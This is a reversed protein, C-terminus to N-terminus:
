VSGHGAVPRDLFLDDALSTVVHPRYVPTDADVILGSRMLYQNPMHDGGDWGYLKQLRENNASRRAALSQFDLDREATAMLKDRIDAITDSRILNHQEAPDSELDFLLPEFAGFVVLKYQCWRVMRFESGEGWRANLHDCIVPHEPPESGAVLAASLDVGAWEPSMPAGAIGAFTPMLDLLSVPTKFRAAPLTGNRHEPLSVFLPVRASAENWTSKWWTGHEGAMEGHDSTYIVVTNELLGSSELSDLLDGIIEDIYSVCAFYAARSTMTEAQGIRGVKFGERIAASVPHDHSDGSAPVRPPSVTEPRYRGIHRQPATLPFHPRSFSACLFWPKDPHEAHHDRLFSVTEEAVVRDITLSEPVKTLGPEDRTRAVMDDRVRVPNGDATVPAHPNPVAWEYQHSGNGALDGYPRHQFGHFQLRGQFHMKGILCTTYGARAFMKPMTDLAPDLISKLNWAGCRQVDLGTLLTMRSPVCLPSGCYANDFVASRRALKDFAPTEVEEGGRDVPLHGFFRFSHEDSFLLLINPKSRM